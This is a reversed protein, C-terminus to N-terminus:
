SGIFKIVNSYFGQFTEEEGFQQEFKAMARHKINKTRCKNLVQESKDNDALKLKLLYKRIASM